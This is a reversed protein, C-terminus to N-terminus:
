ESRLQQTNQDAELWRYLTRRTIGLIEAARKKNGDTHALVQAIYDRQFQSLTPWEDNDSLNQRQANIIREPLVARTIAGSSTFTYAREIANQLERVNGPFPYHQLQDLADDALETIGRQQQQELQAIFHKALREVDEGRERLPPVNLTFTELRYFLDQRFRGESVALALDQHTAAFIRVDVLQEEDSGVARIKGEQLVRLLKAQLAMPMEAIEDLLLSGGNAQMFLGRRADNAGTFAGSKHGFFESEMLESPIGACNVAVFRQSNRASQQHLAKAVLEKGTGSEGQILVPGDAAAIQSIQSYLNRMARSQGIMGAPGEAASRYQKVEQQLRRNSVLRQVRILLHEIDLPKTLFDDAGQKLAEVAQNVTAFATILLLSPQPKVQQLADILSLGSAGPLRVDSVVIDVPQLQYDEVSGFSAVQYDQEELTEVLLERLDPDDEIVAIRITQNAINM